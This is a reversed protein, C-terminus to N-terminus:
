FKEMHGTAILVIIVVVFIIVDLIGLVLGIVAMTRHAKQRAGLAGTIIAAPGLLINCLFLGVIGCILSAIALGFGGAEAPAAVYGGAPPPQPPGPAPAVPTPLRMQAGCASCKVVQGAQEDSAELVTSCTPCQIRM